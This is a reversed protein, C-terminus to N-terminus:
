RVVFLLSRWKGTFNSLVAYRGPAFYRTVVYHEGPVVLLAGGSPVGPRPSRFGDDFWRQETTLEVGAPLRVILAQEPASGSNEIGIALAAISTSM